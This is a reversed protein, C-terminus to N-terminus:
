NKTLTKYWYKGLPFHNNLRDVRDSVLGESTYFRNEFIEDGYMIVFVKDM